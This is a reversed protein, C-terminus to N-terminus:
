YTEEIINDLAFVMKSRKYAECKALALSVENAMENPVMLNDLKIWDNFKCVFSDHLSILHFQSRLSSQKLLIRLMHIFNVHVFNM